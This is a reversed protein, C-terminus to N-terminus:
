KPNFCSNTSIPPGIKSKKHLRRRLDRGINIDLAQGSQIARQASIAIPKRRNRILMEETEDLPTGQSNIKFFSTEAVDASGQIWQVPITRTFLANARRTQVDPSTQGVLGKLTTFRGLQEEIKKRPTNPSENRLRQSKAVTSNKRSRGIATTTM